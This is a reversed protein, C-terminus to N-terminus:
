VAYSIGLRNRILLELEEYSHYTTCADKSPLSDLFVDRAKRIADRKEAEYTELVQNWFESDPCAICVADHSFQSAWTYSSTLFLVKMKRNTKIQQKVFALVKDACSKYYLDLEFFSQSQKANKLREIEEPTVLSTLYEDVDIVMYQKQGSLKKYLYSKGGKPPLLLVQKKINKPNRIRPRICTKYTHIALPTLVNIAMSLGSATTASSIEM